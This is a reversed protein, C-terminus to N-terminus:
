PPRAPHYAAPRRCRGGLATVSARSTAATGSVGTSTPQRHRHPHERRPPQRLVHHRSRHHHQAPQRQRHVPLHVPRRQRSRVIRSSTAPAPPRHRRPFLDQALHESLDQAQAHILDPGLIVEEGEAAVRQQRHPQYSPDAPRQPSLQRHPHHELRRSRRPYRPPQLLLSPTQHPRPQHRPHPRLPHRQRERLLPQPEQRLQVPRTRRIVDRDRHPQAPIHIHHRQPRRQTIHDRPM